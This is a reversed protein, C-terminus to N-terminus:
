GQDRMTVAASVMVDSDIVVRRDLNIVAQAQVDSDIAAKADSSAVM